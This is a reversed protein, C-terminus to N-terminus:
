GYRQGSQFGLAFLVVVAAIVLANLWHSIQAGDIVIYSAVSSADM